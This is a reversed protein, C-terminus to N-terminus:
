MSGSGRTSNKWANSYSLPSRLWQTATGHDAGVENWCDREANWAVDRSRHQYTGELDMAHDRSREHNTLM